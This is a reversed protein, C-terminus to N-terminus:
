PASEADPGPLPRHVVIARAVLGFTEFFNKSDRMGPLALSDIGVAGRETAWAVLDNMMAEGVGIGRADAHVFLDDVIALWEDTNLRELRGVGYGVIADDVTGVVVRQDPDDIAASLTEAAPQRRNERRVYLEGGRQGRMEELALEVLPVVADVDAATALRAAEM